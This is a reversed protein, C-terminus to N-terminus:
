IGIDFNWVIEFIWNELALEERRQINCGIQIQTMPSQKHNPAQSKSNTRGHGMVRAGQKRVRAADEEV